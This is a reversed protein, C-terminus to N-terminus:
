VNVLQTTQERTVVNNCHQLLWNYARDHLNKDMEIAQPSFWFDFAEGQVTHSTTYIPSKSEKRATKNAFINVSFTITKGDKNYDNFIGIKLYADPYSGGTNPATFIQNNQLILAM